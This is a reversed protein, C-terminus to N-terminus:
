ASHALKLRLFQLAELPLHDSNLEGAIQGALRLADADIQADPLVLCESEESLPTQRDRREVIQGTSLGQGDIYEIFHGFAILHFRAIQGGLHHWVFLEVPADSQLWYKLGPPLELNFEPRHLCRMGAVIYESGLFRRIEGDFPEEKPFSIGLLGAEAWQIHGELQLTQQRWRLCGRLSDGSTYPHEGNKLSLRMGSYSLDDVAFTPGGEAKFTLRNFPFRPFTRRDCKRKQGLEPNKFLSLHKKM